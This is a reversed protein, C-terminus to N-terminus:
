FIDATLVTYAKGVVTAGQYIPRIDARMGQERAGLSDLIDSILAATLKDRMMDFMEHENAFNVM